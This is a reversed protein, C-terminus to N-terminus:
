TTMNKQGQLFSQFGLIQPRFDTRRKVPLSHVLSDTVQLSFLIITQTPSQNWLTWESSVIGSINVLIFLQYPTLSTM